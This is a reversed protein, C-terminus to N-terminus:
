QAASREDMTNIFYQQTRCFSKRLVAGPVPAPPPHRRGNVVMDFWERHGTKIVRMYVNHHGDISQVCVHHHDRIFPFLTRSRRSIERM